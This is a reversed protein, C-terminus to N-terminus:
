EHLTELARRVAERHLPTQWAYHRGIGLSPDKKPPPTDIWLHDHREPLSTVLNLHILKELLKRTPEEGLKEFITDPDNLAQSLLSRQPKDLAQITETLKKSSAIMDIVRDISWDMTYLAALLWPSGGTWRWAQSAEPKGKNQPIQQYLQKFGNLSMNWMMLEIAWRHRGIRERTVGESSTVLVVIREYEGPPYEILNLLAKTYAEARELGIAQFVDDMLVALRPKGLRRLAKAAIALAADAVGAYPEPLAAVVERVVERLSPTYQLVKGAEEALPNVYLVHYDYEDELIVRAQQLLATKGCGEPGYIVHVPYTGRDALWRVQRLARERDAFSVVVGPAFRLRVRRM